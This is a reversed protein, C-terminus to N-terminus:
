RSDRGDADYDASVFDCEITLASETEVRGDGWESRGFGVSVITYGDDVGVGEGPVRGDPVAVKIPTGDDLEALAARLDGVTMAAAEHRVMGTPSPQGAPPATPFDAADSARPVSDAASKPDTTM